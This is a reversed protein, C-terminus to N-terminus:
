QVDEQQTSATTNVETQRAANFQQMSGRIDPVSPSLQEEDLTQLGELLAQQQSEPYYEQITAKILAIQQHYQEDNTQLVLQKLTEMRLQLLRHLQLRSDADMAAKIPKDFKRISVAESLQKKMDTWLDPAQETQEDVELLKIEEGGDETVDIAPLPQIQLSLATIAQLISATDPAAWQELSAIDKALQQRVPLYHPEGLSALNADVEKLLAITSAKDKNFHLQRNAMRLLYETDSLIWDKSTAPTANRQLQGQLRTIGAIQSEMSQTYHEAEQTLQQMKSLQKASQEEVVLLKENVTKEIAQLQETSSYGALTEEVEALKVQNEKAKSHIHLWNKYGAMIGVVTLFLALWAIFLTFWPKRPTKAANTDAEENINDVGNEIHDHTNM